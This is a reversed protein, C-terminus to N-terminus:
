TSKSWFYSCDKAFSGGTMRGEPCGVGCQAKIAEWHICDACLPKGVNIAKIDAYIQEAELVANELEESELGYLVRADKTKIRVKWRDDEQHLVMRGAHYRLSPM